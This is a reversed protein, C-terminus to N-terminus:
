TYDIQSMLTEVLEVNNFDKRFSKSFEKLAIQNNSVVYVTENDPDYDFVDIYKKMKMEVYLIILTSWDYGCCHFGEVKHKEFVALLHNKINIKIATIGNENIVWEFPSIKNLFDQTIAEM